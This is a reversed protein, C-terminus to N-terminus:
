SGAGARPGSSSCRCPSASSGASSSCGSAAWRDGLRGALLNTAAKVVGFTVIFSLAATVSALGFERQALLPLVTRELGVMAGVFANVLVLLAFQRWNAGLGLRPRDEVIM